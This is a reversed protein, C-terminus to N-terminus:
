SRLATAPDVKMARRAPLAGAAIAILMLLTAVGAFTLPDAPSVGFLLSAALPTMVFAAGAGIAVGVAGLTAAQGVLMSWVQGPRAGLALRVGVESTREAVVLSIVGYVGIGALLLAVLGFAGVLWLVFRREGVSETRLEDMTRVNSPPDAGMAKLTARVSSTLATPDGTTRMAIFPGSVPGQFHSIYIEPQPTEELSSHRISGVVGIIRLWSDPTPNAGMQVRRGLPSENPFVKAALAANIVALREGASRDEDKFVRGEIVPIRMTGFFDHISRRMQVEPLETPRVTRGEVTLQTTVQTSGLPMRTSGGLATVGPLATLKARLEDYFENRAAQTPYRPPLSVQFTLVHDVAFGPNVSLVAAFSRLLLGAGIALFTALTVETV